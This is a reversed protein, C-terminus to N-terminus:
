IEFIKTLFITLNKVELSVSLREGMSTYVCDRCTFLTFVDRYVLCVSRYVINFFVTILTFVDINCVDRYVIYVVGQLYDWCIGTFLTFM